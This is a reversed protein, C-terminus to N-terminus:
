KRNCKFCQHRFRATQIPVNCRICRFPASIERRAAFDARRQENCKFCRHGYKIERIATGCSTCSPKAERLLRNIGATYEAEIACRVASESRHTQRASETRACEFARHIDEATCEDGRMQVTRAALIALEKHVSCVSQSIQIVASRRFKVAKGDGDDDDDGYRGCNMLATRVDRKLHKYEDSGVHLANRECFICVINIIDMYTVCVRGVFGELDCEEGNEGVFKHVIRMFKWLDGQGCLCRVGYQALPDRYHRSKDSKAFEKATYVIAGYRRWGWNKIEEFPVISLPIKTVDLRVIPNVCNSLRYANVCLRIHSPDIKAAKKTYLLCAAKGAGGGRGGAVAGKDLAAEEGEEGTAGKPPVDSLYRTPKHAQGTCYPADEASAAATDSHSDDSGDPTHLRAAAIAPDTNKFCGDM